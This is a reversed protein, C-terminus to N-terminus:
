DIYQLIDWQNIENEYIKKDRYVCDTGENLYFKKRNIFQRIYYEQLEINYKKQIENKIEQIYKKDKDIFSNIFKERTAASETKIFITNNKLRFSKIDPITMILTEYFCEPFDFELIKSKFDANLTYLNFYEEFPLIRNIENIFDEINEESIGMKNLKNITIYKKDDIKFLIRSYIFKYLYSSFTSGIKKYESKVVFYDENLIQNKLYTELNSINSKMIYNGRLKYGLKSLNLSNILRFNDVNFLNTLLEKITNTSYIDEILYTKIINLQEDTFQPCDSILMNLNIYESFNSTIYAKFSSVKHGYNQYIYDAFDDISIPSLEQIQEEFFHRKDSCNIYIDPMRSFTINEDSDGFIKRMLNHLEYEDRVDIKKMLLTNDNFFLESSYIGSEVNLLEKLEEKEDSDVDNIDFYRYYKGFTNLVYDSRGLVSDVNRADEDTLLDLSLSYLQVIKNYNKILEDYEVQRDEKKLYAVLISSKTAIINEDNYNIINYKKRIIELQKDSLDPNDLLESVDTDGTKYKDKLYYFVYNEVEFLETFIDVSFDYKKIYKALEEEEVIPIKDIERSYIQRIRERTLGYFQGISELTQGNLKKMVIDRRNNKESIKNLEDLLNPYRLVYKSNVKKIKKDNILKYLIEDINNIIRHEEKLKDVLENKDFESNGYNRKIYEYLRNENMTIYIKGSSVMKNYAMMIKNFKSDTIHFKEKITCDIDDIGINLEKLLEIIGRSLGYNQLEDISYYIFYENNYQKIKGDTILEKIIETLNEVSYNESLLVERLENISFCKYNFNSKILTYLKNVNLKLSLNYKIVFKSYATIIKNYTSNGINCKEKISEDIDNIGINNKYLNDIIGKSLGFILLDYISYQKSSENILKVSELILDCKNSNKGVVSFLCEENRNILDITINKQYLNYVTFTPVNYECLLFISKM